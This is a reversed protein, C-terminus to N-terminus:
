PRSSSARAHKRWAMLLLGVQSAGVGRQPAQELLEAVKVSGLSFETLSQPMIGPVGTRQGPQCGAEPVFKRVGVPRRDLSPQGFGAQGSSSAPRKLEAQSLHIVGPALELVGRIAGALGIRELLGVELLPAFGVVGPGMPCEDIAKEGRKLVLWDERTRPNPRGVRRGTKTTPRGLDSVVRTSCTRALWRATKPAPSSRSTQSMRSRSGWAAPLSAGGSSQMACTSWFATPASAWRWSLASSAIPPVARRTTSLIGSFM